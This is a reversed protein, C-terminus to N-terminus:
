PNLWQALRQEMVAERNVSVTTMAGGLFSELAGRWSEQEKPHSLLGLVEADFLEDSAKVPSFVQVGLAAAEFLSSSYLGVAIDAVLLLLTTDRYISVGHRAFSALGDFLDPPHAPHPAYVISVARSARSYELSVTEIIALEIGFAASRVYNADHGVGGVVLVLDGRAAISEICKRVRARVSSEGPKVGSLYDNIAPNGIFRRGRDGQLITWRFGALSRIQPFFRHKGPPMSSGALYDLYELFEVSPVGHMLEVMHRCRADSLLTRRLVETAFSNSTLFIAMSDSAQRLVTGYCESLATSAVIEKISGAGKEAGGRLTPIVRCLLRILSPPSLFLCLLLYGYDVLYVKEELLEERRHWLSSRYPEFLLVADMEGILDSVEAPDDSGPLGRAFAALQERVPRTEALKLRRANLAIIGVRLTDRSSLQRPLGLRQKLMGCIHLVRSFQSEAAAARAHGGASRSRSPPHGGNEVGPAHGLEEGLRRMLRDLADVGKRRARTFAALWASLNNQAINRTM